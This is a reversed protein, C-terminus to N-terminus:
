LRLTKASKHLNEWPCPKKLRAGISAITVDAPGTDSLEDWGIPCSVPAIKSARPSYAAVVTQAFANREIDVYIRSGRDAKSFERTLDDPHDAVLAAALQEMREYVTHTDHKPEIAAVLHYGKSGSTKLHVDLGLESTMATRVVECAERLGAVDDTSPDLDVVVRDPRDISEATAGTVHWVITNLNAIYTLTDTDNCLLYETEGDKKPIRKRPIWDPYKGTADKEMFGPGSVGRPFRQMTLPRGSIHPLMRDAVSLLYDILGAKTIGDFLIKDASSIKVDTM